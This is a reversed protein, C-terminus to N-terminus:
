LAVNSFRIPVCNSFYALKLFRSQSWLESWDPWFHPWELGSAFGSSHKRCFFYYVKRQQGMFTSFVFNSEKKAWLLTTNWSIMLWFFLYICKRGHFLNGFLNELCRMDVGEAELLTLTTDLKRVALLFYTTNCIHSCKEVCNVENTM